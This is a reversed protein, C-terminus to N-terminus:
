PYIDPRLAKRSVGTAAEVALVRLPPVRGSACWKQVAQPRIGLERAL